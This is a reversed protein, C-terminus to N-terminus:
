KRYRIQTHEELSQRQFSVDIEDREGICISSGRAYAPVVRYPSCGWVGTSVGDSFVLNLASTEFSNQLPPHPEALSQFPKAFLQILSTFLISPCTRSWRSTSSPPSFLSFPLAVVVEGPLEETRNASRKFLFVAAERACWQTVYFFFVFTAMVMPGCASAKFSRLLCCFISIRFTSPPANSLPARVHEIIPPPTTLNGVM